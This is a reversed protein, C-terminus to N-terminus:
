GQAEQSPRSNAYVGVKVLESRLEIVPPNVRLIVASSCQLAAPAIDIQATESAGAPSPDAPSWLLLGHSPPTGCGILTNQRRLVFSAVRSM